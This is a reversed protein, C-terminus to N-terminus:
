LRLLRAFIRHADGRHAPRRPRVIHGARRRHRVGGRRARDTRRAAHGQRHRRPEHQRLPCWYDSTNTYSSVNGQYDLTRYTATTRRVNGNADYEYALNAAPLTATGTEVFTKLRGLADYTASSNQLTASTPTIAEDVWYSNTVYGYYPDYERVLLGASLISAERQDARHPAPWAQRLQLELCHAGLYLQGGPQAGRPDDLRTPRHQPSYSRTCAARARSTSGAPSTTATPGSMAASIPRPRPGAEFIDKSEVLTGGNAHTTVQTWGGFTGIGSTSIGGNWAYSFSTLDGGFGLQSTVRGLSWIGTLAKEAHLRHDAHLYEWHGGGGYYGGYPDYPDEVWYAEEPGYVPNQYPQEM